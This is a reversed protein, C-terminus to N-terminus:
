VSTWNATAAALEEQPGAIAAWAPWGFGVGAAVVFVLLRRNM